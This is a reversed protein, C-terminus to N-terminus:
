KLKMTSFMDKIYQWLIGNINPPISLTMMLSFITGMFLSHWDFKNLSDLTNTVADLKLDITEIKAIPLDLHKIKESLEQIGTIIIRKEYDNFNSDLDEIATNMFYTDKFPSWGTNTNLELSLDRIWDQFREITHKWTGGVSYGETSDIPYVTLYYMDNKTKQITFSFYDLAYKIKFEKNEGSIEFDSHNLSYKSFIENLEKKQINTIRM